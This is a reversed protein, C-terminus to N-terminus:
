FIMFKKKKVTQTQSEQVDGQNLRAKRTVAGTMVTDM